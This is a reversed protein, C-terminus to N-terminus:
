ARQALPSRPGDDPALVLVALLGWLMRNSYFDGSVLSQFFLFVFVLRLAVWSRDAPIRRLVASAVLLGVLALGVLGFEAGVQLLSNHPYPLDAFEVAGAAFSAFSGTGHGVIPREAFMHLAAGFLDARVGASTDNAGATGLLFDGLRSYRLVSAEPLAGVAVLVLAIGIGVAGLLAASRREIGGGRALHVGLAGIAAAAAALPPGRSGSAVAVILSVPVIVALALEVPRSRTRLYAIGIVPVFLAAIAVQITNQELVVLRTPDGIRPIALAVVLLGM